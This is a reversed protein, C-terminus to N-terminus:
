GEANNVQMARINNELDIIYQGVQGLWAREVTCNLNGNDTRSLEYCIRAFDMKAMGYFRCNNHVSPQFTPDFEEDM